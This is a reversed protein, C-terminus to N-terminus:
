AFRKNANYTLLATECECACWFFSDICDNICRRVIAMANDTKTLRGLMSMNLRINAFTDYDISICKRLDCSLVNIRDAANNLMRNFVREWARSLEPTSEIFHKQVCNVHSIFDTGLEQTKPDFTVTMTSM